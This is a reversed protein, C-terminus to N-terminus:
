PTPLALAVVYADAYGLPWIRLQWVRGFHDRLPSEQQAAGLSTVRVAQTGIMRPIKAAKLVLDMFEKSDRYRHEDAATGPYQVRLLQARGAAQCAWVRGDGPLPTESGNTCSHIDWSRDDDQQVLCPDYSEYLTALLKGSAGKPFLDAAES